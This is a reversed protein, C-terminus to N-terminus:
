SKALNADTGSCNRPSFTGASQQLRIKQRELSVRQELDFAHKNTGEYFL